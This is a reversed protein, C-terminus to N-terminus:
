LKDEHTPAQFGFVKALEAESVKSFEERFYEDLAQRVTLRKGATDFTGSPWDGYPPMNGLIAM